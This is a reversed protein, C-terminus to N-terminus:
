FTDPTLRWRVPSLHCLYIFTSHSIRFFFHNFTQNEFKGFEKTGSVQVSVGSVTLSLVMVRIM